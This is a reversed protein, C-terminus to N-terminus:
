IPIYCHYKIDNFKVYSAQDEVSLITVRGELTTFPKCLDLYFSLNVRKM